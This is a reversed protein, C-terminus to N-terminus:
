RRDWLWMIYLLPAAGGPLVVGADRRLASRRLPGLEPRGSDLSGGAILQPVSSFRAVGNGGCAKPIFARCSNYCHDATSCAKIGGARTNNSGDTVDRTGCETM